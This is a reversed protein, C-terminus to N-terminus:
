LFYPQLLVLIFSPVLIIFISDFFSIHHYFSDERNTSFIHLVKKLNLLTDRSKLFYFLFSRYMEVVSYSELSPTWGPTVM